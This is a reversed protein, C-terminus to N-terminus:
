KNLNKSTRMDEIFFVCDDCEEGLIKEFLKTPVDCTINRNLSDKQYMEVTDGIKEEKYEVNCLTHM